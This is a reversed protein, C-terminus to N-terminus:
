HKTYDARTIVYDNMKKKLTNRNLGLMIAAQFQNGEMYNLTKIILEREVRSLLTYYIGTTQEERKIMRSFESDIVGKLDGQIDENYFTKQLKQLEEEVNEYSIDANASVVFLNRIFNNLQTLNGPWSYQYFVDIAHKNITYHTNHERNYKEIFFRIINMMDEGWKHLPPIVLNLTSLYYYLDERFHGKQVEKIIDKHTAAIIRFRNHETTRNGKFFYKKENIIHMLMAQMQSSLTTIEEFYIVKTHAHDIEEFFDMLSKETLSNISITEPVVHMEQNRRYSNKHLFHAVVSKGCGRQGCILVPYDSRAFKHIRRYLSQMISSTYDYFFDDDKFTDKINCSAKDDKDTSLLLQLDELDFPKLLSGRLYVDLKRSSYSLLRSNTSMAIIQLKSNQVEFVSLLDTLKGDLLDIEALLIADIGSIIYEKLKKLNTIPFVSYGWQELIKTFIRRANKDSELLIINQQIKEVQMSNWVECLKM